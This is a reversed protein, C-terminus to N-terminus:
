ARTLVDSILNPSFQSASYRFWYNLFLAGTERVSEEAVTSIPQPVAINCAIYYVISDAYCPSLTHTYARMYSM